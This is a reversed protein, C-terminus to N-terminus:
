AAKPEDREDDDQARPWPPAWEISDCPEPGLEDTPTQRLSLELVTRAAQTRATAAAGENTMIKVLTALAAGGARQLLRVTSSVLERRAEDYAKSFTPRKMWRRLTAEGIGAAKAAATITGYQILAAIAREQHRTIKEGNGAM